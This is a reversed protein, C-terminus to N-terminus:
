QSLFFRVAEVPVDMRAACEAATMGSDIFRRTVITMAEGVEVIHRDPDYFRVVRQGWPQEEPTHVYAIGDWAALKQLFGDFDDTEFALEADNAGFAVPKGHIFHEWTDATQLFLGGELSVNAGFDGTVALGFLGTYFARAKAMDAVAILMGTYKM